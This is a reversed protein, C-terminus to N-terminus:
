LPFERLWFSSLFLLLAMISAPLLYRQLQGNIGM